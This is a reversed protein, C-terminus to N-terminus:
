WITIAINMPTRSLRAKRSGTPRARPQDPTATQIKMKATNTGLVGSLVRHTEEMMASISKEVKSTMAARPSEGGSGIEKGNIKVGVTTARNVATMEARMLQRM